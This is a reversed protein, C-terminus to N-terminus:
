ATRAEMTMSRGLLRSPIFPAPHPSTLSTPPVVCTRGPTPTPTPMPLNRSHLQHFSPGLEGPQIAAGATAGPAAPAGGIYGQGNLERERREEELDLREQDDLERRHIMAPRPDMDGNFAPPLLDRKEREKRVDARVHEGDDDDDLSLSRGGRQLNPLDLEDRPPHYASPSPDMVNADHNVMIDKPTTRARKPSTSPGGKAAGIDDSTHPPLRPLHHSLWIEDKLHLRREQHYDFSPSSRTQRAQDEDDAPPTLPAVTPSPLRPATEQVPSTTYDPM